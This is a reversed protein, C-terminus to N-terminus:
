FCPLLTRHSKSLAQLKNKDGAVLTEKKARSWKSATKARDPPRSNRSPRSFPMMPNKIIGKERRFPQPVLTRVQTLPALVRRGAVLRDGLLNTECM